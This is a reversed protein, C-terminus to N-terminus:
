FIKIVAAPKLVCISQHFIQRQKEPTKLDATMKVDAPLIHTYGAHLALQDSGGFVAALKGPQQFILKM